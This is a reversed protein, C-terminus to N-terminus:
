REGRRVVIKLVEEFIASDILILPINRGRGSVSLMSMMGLLRWSGGDKTDAQLPGSDVVLHCM